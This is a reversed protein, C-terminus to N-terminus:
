PRSSESTILKLMDQHAKLWCPLWVKDDAQYNHPNGSVEMEDINAQAWKIEEECKEKLKEM